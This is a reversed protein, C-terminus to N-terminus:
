GLLAVADFGCEVADAVLDPQHQTRRGAGALGGLGIEGFELQLAVDDADAHVVGAGLLLVLPGAVRGRM